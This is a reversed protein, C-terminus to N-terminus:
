EIVLEGSVVEDGNSLEIKYSGKTLYLKGNDAAKIDKLKENKKSAQKLLKESISLDYVWTQLGQSSNLTKTQLKEGSESYINLSLETQKKAYWSIEVEPEMANVYNNWKRGWYPSSKQKDPTFLVLEINKIEPLKQVGSIDAIYISRGHTGLILDSEEPHIALDHVPADPLGKAFAMFNEGRDISVYVGHDTGTYIINENGPDEKVVNVAELPLDKGIQKWNNGYDESVFIYPNFHDNRYGNISIYVRSEKHQSAFIQSVWLKKPLGESIDTWKSGGDKTVYVAGDDSGTYILGFKLSSENITSLTGFSVDGRMGGNTLDPSIAELNEGQNLSRYLRNAGYYLIDQNHRSLFIPTEWNFRLPREGLDHIPKIRLREKTETNYRYYFGFQSGSYVTTNDRWAVEVQMGDGGGISKYSDRGRLHWANEPDYNSSGYWVGNDQLGGYVHYPKAKDFNISYFQGLAPVNAKYWTEGKDYSINIGGDNGNILHGERNPNIWLAHHDSHMNQANLAKFETGGDESLLLPVGLLYVEDSNNPNVGINGFYYGYTYILGELTGEHTKEWTSGGDVSKYLEAGIIPTDFLLSNEDEIYESLSSPKITGDSVMDRISKMSYKRPFSNERLYDGIKKEDLNLFDKSSMLKLDEKSLKDTAKEKKKDQHTQNDLFAYIIKSDGPYVALGIRGIGDGEPFGTKGGSIKAWNEGGDVSKYIGSGKGSETFNWARREREWASAYLIDSNNPDIVLDIVGTNDDIYLTKNWSKGGDTTKYLGREENPSYLHGIVAVWVIDPNEPHLVIRSIHHSEPLGMHKWSNGKDTSKFLGVGSYSSRSSNNEGSGLWIIDNKWDVAIDGISMVMQNDFISTFSMGNNGTYFLGGSAYASYFQTPDAENVALDVVRGSMNVPGVNRFEVDKVLSTEKLSTRVDFSQVRKDAPTPQHEQAKISLSLSFVFVLVYIKKM